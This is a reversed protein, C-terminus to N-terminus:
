LEQFYTKMLIIRKDTEVNAFNIQLNDAIVVNPENTWSFTEGPEVTINDIINCVDQGINKLYIGSFGDNVVTKSNSIVETTARTKYKAM